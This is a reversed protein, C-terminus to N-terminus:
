LIREKILGFEDSKKIGAKILDDANKAAHGENRETCICVWMISHPGSPAQMFSRDGENLPLAQLFM